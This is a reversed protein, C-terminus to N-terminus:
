QSLLQQWNVLVSIPVMPADDARNILFRQGDPTVSFNASFPAVPAQVNVRVLQQRELVEFTPQERLKAAFLMGTNDIYFLEQGDGRWQPQSGSGESVQWRGGAGLFPQVYVQWTGSEDSGYALWRGNPSVRGNTQNGRTEVVAHATKQSLHWAWLDWGHGGTAQYLIREGDPTWDTPFTAYHRGPELPLPEDVGAGSAPKIFLVASNRRLLGFAIRTGDPSWTGRFGVGETFTLRTQRGTAIDVGWLAPPASPSGTRTILARTGDPSLAPNHYGAKEPLLDPGPRGSRDVWALTSLARSGDWFALTGAESVSLMLASPAPLETV